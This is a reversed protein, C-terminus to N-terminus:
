RELKRSEVREVLVHLVLCQLQKRMKQGTNLDRWIKLYLALNALSHNLTDWWHTENGVNCSPFCCGITDHGGPGGKSSCYTHNPYRPHKQLPIGQEACNKTQLDLPGFTRPLCLVFTSQSNSPILFIHCLFVVCVYVYVIMCLVICHLAYLVIIYNCNCYVNSIYEHLYCGSIIM